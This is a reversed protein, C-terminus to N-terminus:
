PVGSNGKDRDAGNLASAGMKDKVSLPTRGILYLNLPEIPNIKLSLCVSGWM